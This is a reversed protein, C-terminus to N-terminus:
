KSSLPSAAQCVQTDNDYNFNIKQPWTCARLVSKPYRSRQTISAQRNRTPRNPSAPPSSHTPHNPPPHVKARKRPARPPVSVIVVEDEKRIDVDYSAHYPPAKPCKGFDVHDAASSRYAFKAGCGYRCSQFMKSLIEDGTFNVVTAPSGPDPSPRSMSRNSHITPSYIHPSITSGSWTRDLNRKANGELIEDVKRKLSADSESLSFAPRYPPTNPTTADDDIFAHRSLYISDTSKQSPSSIAIPSEVLTGVSSTSTSVQSDFIDDISQDM